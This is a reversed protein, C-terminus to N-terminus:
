PSACILPALAFLIIGEAAATKILNQCLHSAYGDMLLQLPRAPPAWPLFQEKFWKNFLTLDMWGKPSLGYSTAAVEGYTIEQNLTKRALIVYPPLAYGSASTCALVTVQNKTSGCIYSPNKAGREGVIKLPKPNLPM